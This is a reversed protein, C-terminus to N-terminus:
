HRPSATWTGRQTILMDYTVAQTLFKSMERPQVKECLNKAMQLSHLITDHADIYVAYVSTQAANNRLSMASLYLSYGQILESQQASRLPQRTPVSQLPQRCIIAM